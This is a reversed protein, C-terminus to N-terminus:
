EIALLNLDYILHKPKLHLALIGTIKLGNVHVALEIGM